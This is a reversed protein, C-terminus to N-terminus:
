KEIWDDEDEEADDDDSESSVAVAAVAPALADGCSESEQEIAAPSHPAVVVVSPPACTAAATTTFVLEIHFQDRCSALAPENSAFRDLQLRRYTVSSTPSADDKSGNKLFFTNVWFHFLKEKGRRRSVMVSNRRVVYLEIKVDGCLPLPKRGSFRFSSEARGSVVSELKVKHQKVVLQLQTNTSLNIDHLNVEHLLLTTPQYKLKYKVLDSYYSVYRQQSPITVGKSNNTRALGYFNLVDNPEQFRRRHLLYCCIMVGTRGKGAKCHIAAINKPHQGLWADVDECFARILEFKPPSHDDFPYLAVRGHFKKADYNRESCLNYVKYFDHHKSELFRVVDDINNRYLGEVKEAPFGMALLNPCIYTLDLDFDDDQYRRKNKSVWRKIQQSM